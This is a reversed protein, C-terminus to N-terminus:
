RHTAVSWPTAAHGGPREGNWAQRRGSAPEREGRKLPLQAEPPVRGGDFAAPFGVVAVVPEEAVSLGRDLETDSTVVDGTVPAVPDSGAHGVAEGAVDTQMRQEHPALRPQTGLDAGTDAMLGLLKLALGGGPRVDDFPM